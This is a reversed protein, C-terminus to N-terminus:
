RTAGPRPWRPTPSWTATISRAPTSRTRSCTTRGQWRRTWTAAITPHRTSSTPERCRTGRGGPVGVPGAGTGRSGPPRRGPCGGRRHLGGAAGGYDVDILSLAELAREEDPAAAAAVPEGVYRVKDVAFIQEDEIAYGYRRDPVDLATIVPSAPFSGPRRGRRHVPDERAAAPQSPDQGVANGAPVCGARLRGPGLDDRPRGPTHGTTGIVRYDDAM